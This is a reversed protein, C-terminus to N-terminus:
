RAVTTYFANNGTRVDKGYSFILGVGLVRLKL